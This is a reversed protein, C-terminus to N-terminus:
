HYKFCNLAFTIQKSSSGAQLFYSYEKIKSFNFLCGCGILVWIFFKLNLLYAHHKNLDKHYTNWTLKCETIAQIGLFEMIFKLHSLHFEFRCDRLEYVLVWGNLWVPWIISSKQTSIQITCQSHTNIMDYVFKSHM